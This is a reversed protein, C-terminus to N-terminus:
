VFMSQQYQMVGSAILKSSAGDKIAETIAEGIGLWVPLHLRQQPALPSPPSTSLPPNRRRVRTGVTAVGCGGYQLRSALDSPM